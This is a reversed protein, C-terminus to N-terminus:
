HDKSSPRERIKVVNITKEEWYESMWSLGLFSVGIFEDRKQSVASLTPNFMTCNVHFKVFSTKFIIFNIRERKFLFFARPHKQVDTKKFNTFRTVM